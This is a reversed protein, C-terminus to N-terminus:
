FLPKCLHPGKDNGPPSVAAGIRPESVRLRVTGHEPLAPAASSCRPTSGDHRWTPRRAIPLLVGRAVNWGCPRRIAAGATPKEFHARPGQQRAGHLFRCGRCSLIMGGTTIQELASRRPPSQAPAAAQRPRLLGIAVGAVPIGAAALACFLTLSRRPM